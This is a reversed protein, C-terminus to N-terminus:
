ELKYSFGLQFFDDDKLDFPLKGSSYAIFLDHKLNLRFTRLFFSDLGAAKVAAPAGSEKYYRYNFEFGEVMRDILPIVEQIPITYLVEIENRYYPELSTTGLVAQRAEDESPDVRGRRVDVGFFDNARLINRKGYTASLGYVYQQNDFSQDTEYKLFGGGTIDGLAGPNSSFYHFDILGDIFNKPNRDEDAAVTGSLNYSLALGSFSVEPNFSDANTDEDSKMFRRTGSVDFELGLAAGDGDQSDLLVPALTISPQQAFGSAPFCAATACIVSLAFYKM